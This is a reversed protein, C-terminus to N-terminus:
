ERGLVRGELPGRRGRETTRGEVEDVEAEEEGGDEEGMRVEEADDSGIAESGRRDAEDVVRM